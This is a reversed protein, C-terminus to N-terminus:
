GETCCHCAKPRHTGVEVFFFQSGRNLLRVAVLRKEVASVRAKPRHTWVEVLFRPSYVEEVM